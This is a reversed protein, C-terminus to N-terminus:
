RARERGDRPKAAGPSGQRGSARGVTHRAEVAALAAKLDAIEDASADGLFHLMAARRDVSRMGHLQELMTSATLQERSGAAAYLHARGARERTLLGKTTLRSMVTLVTTYALTRTSALRDHVERVSVRPRGSDAAAWVEEMVARELDGLKTIAKRPM